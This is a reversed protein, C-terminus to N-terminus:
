RPPPPPPPSFDKAVASRAGVAVEQGEALDGSLLETSRKDNLGTKVEVAALLDDRVVWVYRRNRGAAAPGPDAAPAEDDDDSDLIARDSPVVDEAKPRLRLAANPIKLVGAHKEIQFALSATMGPLLKLASNASEVVVTYTVVNQTTAPNLRVQAISGTFVDKPYAEVTFNVPQNGSQAQRILGIDAEDVSAYVYVKKELDPAVLFLVPTQFQAAVTQGPDVKRDTVIGDVPSKIDTFELNTKATAVNAECELIAAEALKVQAELSKRDTVAQDVDAEAIAKKEQLRLSRRETRVAQQLLAQVRALDARSHALSAEEHAVAWKYTRPDVQALVQDKKVKANFDVFVKEIPGSVFAGIQVSLVPQVTGTSHVVATIDGRRVAATRYAAGAGRSWFAAYHHFGAAGAGAIAGGATLWILLRKM